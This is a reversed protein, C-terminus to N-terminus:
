RCFTPINWPSVAGIAIQFVSGYEPSQLSDLVQRYEDISMQKGEPTSDKYCFSCGKSCRNSISIDALEPVPSFIPDEDLTKGWRFTMGSDPDAIFHYDGIYRLM